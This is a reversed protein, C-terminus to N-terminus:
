ISFNGWNPKLPNNCCDCGCLNIFDRTKKDGTGGPSEAAWNIIKENCLKCKSLFVFTSYEWLYNNWVTSNYLASVLFYFYFKTVYGWAGDISLAHFAIVILFAIHFFHVSCFIEEMKQILLLFHLFPWVFGSVIGQM